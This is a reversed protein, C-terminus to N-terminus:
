FLCVIDEHVRTPFGNMESNRSTKTLSVNGRGCIKFIGRNMKVCMEVNNDCLFM